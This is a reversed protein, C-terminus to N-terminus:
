IGLMDELLDIRTLQIAGFNGRLIWNGSPAPIMLEEYIHHHDVASLIERLVM